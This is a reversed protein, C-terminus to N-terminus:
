TNYIITFIVSFLGFGITTFALVKQRFIWTITGLIIATTGLIFPLFVLSSLAIFLATYGITLGVRRNSYRESSTAYSHISPSIEAAYEEDDKKKKTRHYPYKNSSRKM